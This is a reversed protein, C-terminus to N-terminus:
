VKTVLEYIPLCYNFLLGKTIGSFIPLYLISSVIGMFPLM